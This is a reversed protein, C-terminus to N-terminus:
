QGRERRGQRRRSLEGKIMPLLGGGLTITGELRPYVLGVLVGFLGLALVVLPRNRTRLDRWRRWTSGRRLVVGALEM